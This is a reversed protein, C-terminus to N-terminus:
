GEGDKSDESELLEQLVWIITETITWDKSNMIDEIAEANDCVYLEEIKEKVKQVPIVKDFVMNACAQASIYSEKLEIIQANAIDLDNQLKHTDKDWRKELEQKKRILEFQKDKEEQYAKQWEENEKQLKEIKEEYYNILKRKGYQTLTGTYLLRKLKEINEEDNM